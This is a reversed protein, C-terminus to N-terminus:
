KASMNALLRDMLVASEPFREKEIEFAQRAEDTKGMQFYVYGLHAYFGPPLPKNVAGAKQRDEEMLELQREPPLEGPAAYSAYLMDEYQGWYYLTPTACGALLLAPTALLLAHLLKM